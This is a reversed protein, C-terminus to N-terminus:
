GFIKCLFFQRFKFMVGTAMDSKTIQRSKIDGLLDYCQETELRVSQKPKL